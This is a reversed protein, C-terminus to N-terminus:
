SLDEADLSLREALKDLARAIMTGISGTTTGIVQAIERHAFGEERMLLVTREKESLQELAERVGSRVQSAHAAVDPAAPPDAVQRAARATDVLELRRRARGARKRVHNTAVTFLWAKPNEDRPPRALMRAFAEQVADAALDGDGTLRFLYRFLAAHHQAYLQAVDM